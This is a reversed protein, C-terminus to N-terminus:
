LNIGLERLASSYENVRKKLLIAYELSKGRTFGATKILSALEEDNIGIYDRWDSIKLTQKIKDEVKELKRLDNSKEGFFFLKYSINKIFEAIKAKSQRPLSISKLDVRQSIFNYFENGFARGHLYGLNNEDIDTNLLLINFKLEDSYNKNKLRNYEAHYLPKKSKKLKELYLAWEESLKEDIKTLIYKKLAYTNQLSTTLREKPIIYFLGRTTHLKIFGLEKLFEPYLRKMSHIIRNGKKIYLGIPFCYLAFIKTTEFPKDKYERDILSHSM